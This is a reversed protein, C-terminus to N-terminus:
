NFEPRRKELFAALGEKADATAFLRGFEEAEVALGAALGAEGAADVARKAAQLATASRQALDIALDMAKAPLDEVPLVQSVVGLELAQDATLREGRWILQKARASGVLRSLRQTGGGGPILGLSTEPLGFTAATSCLRLDCALALEFGGGLAFGDVVAIVPQPLTSVVGIGEQVERARSAMDAASTAAFEAVDAGASFCGGDGAILVVRVSRDAALVECADRLEGLLQANLLNLPPRALSITAVQSDRAVRVLANM